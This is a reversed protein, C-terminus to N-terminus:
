KGKKRPATDLVSNFIRILSPLLLNMRMKGLPLIKLSTLSVFYDASVTDKRRFGVVMCGESSRVSKKEGVPVVRRMAPAM